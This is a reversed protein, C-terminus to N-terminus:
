RLVRCVLGLSSVGAGKQCVWLCRRAGNGLLDGAWVSLIERFCAQDEIEAGFCAGGEAPAAELGDEFIFCSCLGLVECVLNLLDARAALEGGVDFLSEVCDSVYPVESGMYLLAFHSAFNEVNLRALGLPVKIDEFREEVM